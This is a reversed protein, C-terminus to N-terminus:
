TLQRHATVPPRSLNMLGLAGAVLLLVGSPEPVVFLCPGTFGTTSEAQFNLFGDGGGKYSGSIFWISQLVEFDLGPEAVNGLSFANPWAGIGNVDIVAVKDPRCVNFFGKGFACGDYFNDGDPDEGVKFRWETTETKIELVFSDITAQRSNYTNFRVEGTYKDYTIAVHGLNAEQPCQNEIPHQAFLSSGPCVLCMVAFSCVRATGM